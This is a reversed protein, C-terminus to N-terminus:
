HEVEGFIRRSKWVKYNYFFDAKNSDMEMM